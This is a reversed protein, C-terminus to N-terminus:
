KPMCSYDVLINLQEKRVNCIEQLLRDITQFDNLRASYNSFGYEAFVPLFRNQKQDETGTTLLIKKGAANRFKEALYLCRPQAGSAVIMCDIKLRNLDESEIQILNTLEM